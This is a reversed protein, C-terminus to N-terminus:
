IIEKQLNQTISSNQTFEQEITERIPTKVQNNNTNSTNSSSNNRNKLQIDIYSQRIDRHSPPPQESYLDHLDNKDNDQNQAKYVRNQPFNRKYEQYQKQKQTPSVPTNLLYDEGQKSDYSQSHQRTQNWKFVTKAQENLSDSPSFQRDTHLNQLPNFESSQSLTNNRTRNSSTNYTLTQDYYNPLKNSSYNQVYEQRSQSHSAYRDIQQKSRFRYQRQATKPTQPSSTHSSLNNSINKRSQQFNINGNLNNTEPIGYLQNNSNQGYPNAFGTPTNIKLRPLIKSKLNINNIEIRNTEKYFEKMGSSGNKQIGNPNKIDQKKKKEYQQDKAKQMVKEMKKVVSHQIGLYTNAIGYAKMYLKISEDDRKLHEFEVGLNHYAIALVAIRDDTVIKRKKLAPENQQQNQSQTKYFKLTQSLMEDQLMIISLMSHELAEDHRDLQSLVACLNLHTDALSVDNDDLKIEIELANILYNLATRLKNTRRYYCAMNNFTVAKMKQSNMQLMEAKRLQELSKDFQEMELYIMASMNLLQCLKEIGKKFETSEEGFQEKKLALIKEMLGIGEVYKGSKQYADLKSQLAQISQNQGDDNQQNNNSNSTDSFFGSNNM